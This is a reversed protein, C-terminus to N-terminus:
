DMIEIIKYGKKIEIYISSSNEISVINRKKEILSSIWIFSYCLLNYMVIM